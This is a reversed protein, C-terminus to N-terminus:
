DAICRAGGHFNTLLFDKMAPSPHGLDFAILPETASPVKVAM